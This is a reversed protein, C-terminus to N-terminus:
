KRKSHQYKNNQQLQMEIYEIGDPTLKEVVPSKAVFYNTGNKFVSYYRMYTNKGERYTHILYIVTQVGSDLIEKVLNKLRQLAQDHATFSYVTPCSQIYLIQAYVDDFYLLATKLVKRMFKQADPKPHYYQKTPVIFTDSEIQLYANDGNIILIGKELNRIVNTKDM